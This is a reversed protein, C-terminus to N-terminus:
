KKEKDFLPPIKEFHKVANEFAHAYSLVNVDHMTPAIMQLGLPKNDKNFGSPISVAPFGGLNACITFLDQLYMQLPDRIAGIEFCPSPASPIVVLDCDAYAKEFAQIILTRAKQAKKYYADQYGASLVYTGLMIRRKVEPGFGEERSLEYIEDLTNANESRQGYKIGDFRALNTSAEATAIIYYAAISYKLIDLNIDIIEAGLDKLVKISEKFNQHVEPNINELFHYPAGIKINKLDMKLNELYSEQPLNLSTSDKACHKGITEMLLATDKVNTTIPGIQELSSGFAVLGHRSVRGYTPKFGVLGCFAAPQRISGGTDTGLSCLGLRAAIAATSGGSSGGPVCKLNWPNKTFGFSSNETSSGMGFEDLNTKGLIIADEKELLEIATASFPAKYNKQFQSGCTTIEDKININDKIALPIGVLKGVPKNAKIKEDISKAKKLAREPITTLFASIDKDFVKIRNFFYNVVETATLKKKYILDRIELASKKYM